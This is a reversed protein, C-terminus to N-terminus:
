EWVISCNECMLKNLGHKQGLPARHLYSALREESDNDGSSERGNFAGTTDVNTFHATFQGHQTRHFLRCLKHLNTPLVPGTIELFFRQVMQGESLEKVSGQRVKLSRLTAGRFGLPSLITPPLGAHSGSTSITTKSTLLYNFLVHVSGPGEVLVASELRNDIRSERPLTSRQTRLRPLDQAPLGM